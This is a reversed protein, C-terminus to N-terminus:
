KKQKEMPTTGKLWDDAEVQVEETVGALKMGDKVKDMFRWEYVKLFDESDTVTETLVTRRVDENRIRDM